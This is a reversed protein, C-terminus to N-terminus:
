TRTSPPLTRQENLEAALEDLAKPDQAQLRIRRDCTFGAVKLLATFDLEPRDLVVRLATTLAEVPQDDYSALLLEADRKKLVTM